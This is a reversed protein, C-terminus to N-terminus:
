RKRTGGKLVLADFAGKTSTATEVNQWQKLAATTRRKGLRPECLRRFKTALEKESVPNDEHGLPNVINVEYSKGSHDKAVVRMRIM